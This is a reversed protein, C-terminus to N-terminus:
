LCERLIGAYDGETPSCPDSSSCPDALATRCLPKLEGLLEERSLKLASLSKPLGLERCLRNLAYVLARGSSLGLSEVLPAYLGPCCRLHWAVVRPLLLANLRGHPRHFRGGLAHALAHCAGLGARDFAIGAMCSATLLAQGVEQRGRYALPLLRFLTKVAQLALAETFPSAHKAVLAEFGHCLADMGGDAVLAPPLSRVYRSDLIALNPRLREERLVQKVGGHTLIAYSTVESGTGSTTPIAIFCPQEGAETVALMGKACDIASGGGLAILLRPQLSRLLSAGEAALEVTPEGGVKSFCGSEPAFLGLLEAAAGNLEFYPDTVLLARQGGYPKLAEAAEVGFCIETSLGFKPM